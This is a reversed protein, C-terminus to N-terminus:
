NKIIKHTEGDVSVVYIGTGLFSVNLQCYDNGSLLGSYLRTGSLDYIEVRVNEGKCPITLIDNVPNPYPQKLNKDIVPIDSTIDVAEWFYADDPGVDHHAILELVSGNEEKVFLYRIRAYESENLYYTWCAYKAKVVEANSTTIAIGKENPVNVHVYLFGQRIEEDKLFDLVIADAQERTIQASLSTAWAFVVLISFLITKMGANKRVKSNTIRCLQIDSNIFQTIMGSNNPM